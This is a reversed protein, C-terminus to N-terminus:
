CNMTASSVSSWPTIAPCMCADDVEICNRAHYTWTSPDSSDGGGYKDVYFCGQHDTCSQASPDCIAARANLESEDSTESQVEGGCAVIAFLGTTIVASLLAKISKM